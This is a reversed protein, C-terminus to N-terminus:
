SAPARMARRLGEAGPWDAPALATKHAAKGWGTGQALAALLAPADDVHLGGMLTVGRAFLPDPLCSAGPGILTIRTAGRLHGLVLDLTDNLLLTSTALVKNCGALEGPDLVIRHGDRMGALSERRELVTVRAGSDVIRRILPPFYGVMGVHDGPAPDLGGISDSAAPPTFRARDMFWRSLANVVAFGVVRYPNDTESWWRAVSLPDEGALRLDAAGRDLVALTDDLLVYALGVTGDALEVAAFEADRHGTWPFPPLHLAALAPPPRTGALGELLALMESALGSHPGPPTAASATM